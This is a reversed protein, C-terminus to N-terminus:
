QIQQMISEKIILLFSFDFTNVSPLSKKSKIEPM